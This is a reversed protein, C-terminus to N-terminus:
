LHLLEILSKFSCELSTESELDYHLLESITGALKGNTRAQHTFLDTNRQYSWKAAIKTGDISNFSTYKTMDSEKFDMSQIAWWAERDMSNELCSYQLQNGNGEEPSRGQGLSRVWM